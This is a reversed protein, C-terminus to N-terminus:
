YGWNKTSKAEAKTFPNRIRFPMKPLKLVPIRLTVQKTTFPNISRTPRTAEVSGVSIKPFYFKM